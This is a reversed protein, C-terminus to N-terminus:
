TTLFTLLGPMQKNVEELTQTSSNYSIVQYNMNDGTSLQNYSSKNIEKINISSQNLEKYFYRISPDSTTGSPLFGALTPISGRSAIVSSATQIINYKELPKSNTDYIKGTFYKNGNIINYFGVYPVKSVTFRLSLNNGIGTGNTYQNEKIRNKPIQRM